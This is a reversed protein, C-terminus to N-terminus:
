RLFRMGAPHNSGHVMSHCNVCGRDFMRSGPFFEPAASADSYPQTPHRAEDHCQQCLRPVKAVLLRPHLSGHPDHCNTCQERVPPHEWLVPARKEAHCTYCNENVSAQRLMSPGAGSGHPNHCSTCRMTGERMPMHGSRYLSAKRRMHCSTCTAFETGKALLHEPVEKEPHIRHCSLCSLNRGEHPSGKWHSEEGQEHCTLCVAAVDTAGLKKFSRIKTIDGGGEIHDAGPGHCTECAAAGDPTTHTTRGHTTRALNEVQDSHCEGCAEMGALRAPAAPTAPAAGAPPAPTQMTLDKSKDEQAGAAPVVALATALVLLPLAIRVNGRPSM